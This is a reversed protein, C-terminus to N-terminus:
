AGGGPGKKLSLRKKLPKNGAAKPKKNGKFGVPKTRPRKASAKGQAEGAAPKGARGKGDKRPGAGQHVGPSSSDAQSKASTSGGEGVPIQRRKNGSAVATRKRKPKSKEAKGKGPKAASVAGKLSDRICM